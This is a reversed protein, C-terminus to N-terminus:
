PYAGLWLPNFVPNRREQADAGGAPIGPRGSGSGRGFVAARGSFRRPANVAGGAVFRGGSVAVPGRVHPM